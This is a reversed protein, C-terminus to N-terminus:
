ISSFIETLTFSVTYFHLNESPERMYRETYISDPIFLYSYTLLILPSLRSHDDVHCVRNLLYYYVMISGNPSQPWQWEVNSFEVALDWSWQHLTDAMLSSSIFLETNYSMEQRLSLCLVCVLPHFM